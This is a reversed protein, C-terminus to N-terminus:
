AQKPIWPTLESIPTPVIEEYMPRGRYESLMVKILVEYSLVQEISPVSQWEHFSDYGSYNYDSGYRSIYASNVLENSCFFVEWVWPFRYSKPAQMYQFLMDLLLSEEQIALRESSIFVWRILSGTQNAEAVHVKLVIDKKNFYIVHALERHYNSVRDSLLTDHFVVSRNRMLLLCCTTLFLFIAIIILVTNKKREM